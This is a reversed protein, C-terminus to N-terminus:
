RDRRTELRGLSRGRAPTRSRSARSRRGAREATPAPGRSPRQGEQAGDVPRRRGPAPSRRHAQLIVFEVRRNKCWCDENHQTCLPKTEGYGHRKCAARRRRGHEILYAQVSTRRPRETLDCTTPTTAASTPTARSRSAAPDAPQGQHTAAVADLLPFSVPKIIAKDTEFYIKDLIELKGNRVIVRGKDPCGDEDEFGNYTEPENPCKDDKDLIRDKDNDPDPCGDEDEFGDKDEPDNPCLDDVDLIGDKDNDPDPCGDEDEFGDKDEPDDPCKDVDDPIGDGDRDLTSATPAATRTRSATRPRPTTRASTTSTSSATAQRQRSRPLRGRGRLRRLGRSRRPVQRRRGQHRRRRPRRDVARLHLRHLRAAGRDRRIGPLLGRGGGLEFFSNRALYLKIGGIAEAAPASSARHRRRSRDQELRPRLQRLDRRGRRVEAARHRLLAGVGGIFENGISIGQSPTAPRRGHVHAPFSAANDTFVRRAPRPHAHRRQHRRPLARPLRARHRRRRDAPLDDAGRRPVLEQRRDAPHDVPHGRPGPRQPHREHLRIKPHVQSTASGRSAHVHVRTTSTPRRRARTPRTAAGSSRGGAARDVGLEIGPAALKTFGSRARCRRRSWRQRRAFSTRAPRGSRRQREAGAAQARVHHRPRVLLRRGSFRRRTSRHHVGELGDGPPLDALDVPANTLQQAQARPPSAPRRPRSRAAAQVLGRRPRVSM